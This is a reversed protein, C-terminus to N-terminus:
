EQIMLHFYSTGPIISTKNIWIYGPTLFQCSSLDTGNQFHLGPSLEIDTLMEVSTAFPLEKKIANSIREKDDNSLRTTMAQYHVKADEVKVLKKMEIHGVVNFVNSSITIGFKNYIAELVLGLSFRQIIRSVVSSAKTGFVSRAKGAKHIDKFNALAPRLNVYMERTADVPIRIFKKFHGRGKFVVDPLRRTSLRVQGFYGVMHEDLYVAREILQSRQLLCITNLAGAAISCSECFFLCELTVLCFGSQTQIIKLVEGDLSRTEDIVPRHPQWPIYSYGDKLLGLADEGPVSYAKRFIKKAKALEGGSYRRKSLLSIVGHWLDSNGGGGIRELNSKENLISGSPVM